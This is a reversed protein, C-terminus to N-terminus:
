PSPFRLCVLKHGEDQIKLEATGMKQNIKDYNTRSEFVVLKGHKSFLAYSPTM